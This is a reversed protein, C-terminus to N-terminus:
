NRAGTSVACVPLLLNMPLGGFVGRFRLACFVDCHMVLM